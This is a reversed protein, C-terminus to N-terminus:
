LPNTLTNAVLSYRRGSDVISETDEHENQTKDQFVPGKIFEENMDGSFSSDSLHQNSRRIDSPSELAM